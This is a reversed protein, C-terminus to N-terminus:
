KKGNGLPYVYPSPQHLLDTSGFRCHLTFTCFKEYINRNFFHNLLIERCLYLKKQMQAFEERGKEGEGEEGKEGKAGEGKEGKRGRM